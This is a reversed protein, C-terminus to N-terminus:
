INAMYQMFIRRIINVRGLICRLQPGYFRSIVPM